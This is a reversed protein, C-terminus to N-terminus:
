FFELQVLLCAPSGWAPGCTDPPCLIWIIWSQPILICTCGAALHILLPTFFSLLLAPIFAPSGSLLYGPSGCIHRHMWLTKHIHRCCHFGAEALGLVPLPQTDRNKNKYTRYSPVTTVAGQRHCGIHTAMGNDQVHTQTHRQSIYQFESRSWGAFLFTAVTDRLRPFVRPGQPFPSWHSDPSFGSISRNSGAKHRVDRLM